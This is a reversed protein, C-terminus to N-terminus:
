FACTSTCSYAWVGTDAPRQCSSQGAVYWWLGRRDQREVGADRMWDGTDRRGKGALRGQVLIETRSRERGHLKTEEAM